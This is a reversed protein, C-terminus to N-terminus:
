KNMKIVERIVLVLSSIVGFLSLSLTWWQIDSNQSMDLYTGLWTFFAIIVGMQIGLSSFKLYKSLQKNRNSKQEGM